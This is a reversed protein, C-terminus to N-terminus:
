SDRVLSFAKTDSDIGIYYTTDRNTVHGNMLDTTFTFEWLEEGMNGIAQPVVFTFQTGSVTGNVAIHEDTAPAVPDGLGTSEQATPHIDLTGTIQNGQQDLTMHCTGTVRLARVGNFDLHYYVANGTWEGSLNRAPTLVGDVVGGGCGSLTLAFGLVGSLVVARSMRKM